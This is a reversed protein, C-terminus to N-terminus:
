YLIREEIWAILMIQDQYVIIGHTPKLITELDKHLYTVKHQSKKRNIFEPIMDMPGPRYLALASCIDEFSEVGMQRLTQRMGESELQFVGTTEGRAIMDFTKKDNYIKPMVFNPNEKKISDLCNKINTLNRLGLFDNKLLGLKELDVAEYQTQYIENLGEDLPTYTVLDEKTM